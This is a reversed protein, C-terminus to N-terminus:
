INEKRSRRAQLVNMFILVAFAMLALAIAATYAGVLDFSDYRDEVFLTLTETKGALRGSVISVAGFEGLARATTLVVGYIVGWRISPLTVRWFTRWSSAGLTFAAEEQDTGIERLVPMVERAVFPLSVFITALVMGPLSFIVNLGADALVPGLFGNRGYVLLLSLGIVVPSLAFPLDILANLLNRGRFRRRVIALAATIGFITNLPVAIVTVTVTLWFAHQFNPKAITALIGAIGQDFARVFVLGVPLGLLLALYGLGIIRVGWKAGRPTATARPMPAAVPPPAVPPKGVPLDVASM